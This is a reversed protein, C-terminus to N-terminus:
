ILEEKLSAGKVRRKDELKPFSYVLEGTETVFVTGAFTRAYFKVEKDSQGQNAIFPIQVKALKQKTAAPIANQSDSPSSEALRPVALVLLSFVIIQLSSALTTHRFNTAYREPIWFLCSLRSERTRPFSPYHPASKKSSNTLRSVIHRNLINM